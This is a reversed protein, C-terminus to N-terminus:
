VARLGGFSTTLQVCCKKDSFVVMDKVLKCIREALNKADTENTEPLVILFEDGGYRGATDIGRVNHSIIKGVESLMTDGTVHGYTDNIDKFRDLDLMILSLPHKYRRARKIIVDVTNQSLAQLIEDEEGAEIVTFNYLASQKLYSKVVKRDVPDDDCLLVRIEQQQSVAEM